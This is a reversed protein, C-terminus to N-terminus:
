EINAMGKEFTFKMGVYFTRGAQPNFYRGNLGNLRYFSSYQEDMLNESGVYLDILYRQGIPLQYGLRLDLLGYSQSWATNAYNLSVPDFFRYSTRISFRNRLLIDGLLSYTVKPVGPIENGSFDENLSVFENFAYHQIGLNFGVNIASLMRHPENQHRFKIESELGRLELSGLNSFRSFGLSDPNETIANEIRTVYGNLTIYFKDLLLSGRVGMEFHRSQEAQVQPSMQIEWLTPTSFGRSALAYVLYKNTLSYRMSIQPLWQPEFHRRLSPNGMAPDELMNERDFYNAMLGLSADIQLKRRFHIKTNLFLNIYRSLTEDSYRLDGADGDVLDFEALANLDRQFEGGLIINVGADDHDAEFGFLTRAGYGTAGEDKLGNYFQSTGFPNLKTSTHLFVTSFNYFHDTIHIKHSLGLRLWKRDVRTNNEVAYPVASRPNTAMTLSDIEGPLGWSGDYYMLMLKTERHSEPRFRAVLNLQDKRVQEQERYGDHRFRFYHLSIATKKSATLLSITQKQMGYSGLQLNASANMKGYPATKSRFLIAGGHGEGYISGQPGKLVDVHGIEEPDILELASSGDALTLPIENWYIQLNRVGFPSRMLSGRISLRRSGGDGRSEMLVGPITNLTSQISAASHREFDGSEITSITKPSEFRRTEQTYAVIEVDRLEIAKRTLRIYQNGSSDLIIKRPIYDLRTVLITDGAAINGHLILRGFRDSQYKGGTVKTEIFVSDLNQHTQGDVFQFRFDEQAQTTTIFASILLGFAWLKRSFVACPFGLKPLLAPINKM